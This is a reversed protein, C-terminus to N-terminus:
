LKGLERALWRQVIVGEATDDRFGWLERALRLCPFCFRGSSDPELNAHDIARRLTQRDCRLTAAARSVSIRNNPPQPNMTSTQSLSSCNKKRFSPINPSNGPVRVGAGTSSGIPPTSPHVM